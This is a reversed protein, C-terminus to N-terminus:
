SAGKRARFVGPDLGGTDLSFPNQGSFAPLNSRDSLQGLAALTKAMGTERLDGRANFEEEARQLNRSLVDLRKQEFEEASKRRGRASAIQQGLLALLAAGGLKSGGGIQGLVGGISDLVGGGGGDEDEGGGAAASAAKGAFRLAESQGGSAIAAGIRAVDGLAGSFDGRVLNDLPTSKVVSGVADKVFGGIKGFIGM